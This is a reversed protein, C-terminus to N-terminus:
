GLQVSQFSTLIGFGYRLYNPSLTTCTTRLTFIVHHHVLKDLVEADVIVGESLFADTDTLSSSDIGAPRHGQTLGGAPDAQLPLLVLNPDCLRM